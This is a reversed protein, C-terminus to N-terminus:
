PNLVLTSVSYPPMNYSFQAPNSLAQKDKAVPLPSAGTLQYIAAQNLAPANKLNIIATIPNATKNIVILVMRTPTPAWSHLSAYISTDPVNSTQAYISTDGFRSNFGDFNRYMRFASSVFVEKYDPHEKSPLIPYQM